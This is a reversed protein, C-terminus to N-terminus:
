IYQLISGWINCIHIESNWSRITFQALKADVQLGM